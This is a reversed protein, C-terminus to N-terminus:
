REAFSNRHEEAGQADVFNASQLHISISTLERLLSSALAGGM